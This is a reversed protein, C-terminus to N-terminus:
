RLTATTYFVPPAQARAFSSSPRPFLALNTWSPSHPTFSADACQQYECRPSRSVTNELVLKAGRVLAAVHLQDGVVVADLLPTSEKKKGLLLQVQAKKELAPTRKAPTAGGGILAAPVDYLGLVGSQTLALVLTRASSPLAFSALRRAPAELPLSALPRASTASWLTLVRDGEAASLFASGSEGVSTLHEVSSAHGTWTQAGEEAELRQIAHSAVLVEDKTLALLARAEQETSTRAPADDGEKDALNWARVTADACAAYLTQAAPVFLLAQVARSGSSPATTDSLVRVVRAHTPSFLSVTGDSLGLAVVSVGAKEAASSPASSDKRRKKSGESAGGAPPLEAWVLATARANPLVYDAALRAEAGAQPAYIRLRHRDLAQTLLAFYAARPAFSSLVTSSVPTTTTALTSAPRAGSSSSTRKKSRAMNALTLIHSASRSSGERPCPLNKLHVHSPIKGHPISVREM